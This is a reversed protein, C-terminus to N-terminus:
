QIRRINEYHYFETDDDFGNGVFAGKPTLEHIMVRDDGDVLVEDEPGIGETNGEAVEEDWKAERTVLSIEITAKVNSPNLDFREALDLAFDRSLLYKLKEKDNM